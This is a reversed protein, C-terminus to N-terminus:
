ISQNGLFEDRFSIMKRRKIDCVLATKHVAKPKAVHYLRPRPRAIPTKTPYTKYNFSSHCIPDFHSTCIARVMPVAAQDSFRERECRKPERRCRSAATTCGGDCRQVYILGNVLSCMIWKSKVANNATATEERM